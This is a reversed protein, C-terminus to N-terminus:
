EEPRGSDSYFFRARTVQFRFFDGDGHTPDGWRVTGESAIRVGDVVITSTVTASFPEYGPPKASDNWRRLEIDTLQGDDDVTVDIDVPGDPGPITVTARDDDIPRWVADSQPTLAQPLWAATEAALRGAASRETDPGSADVVPIRGYLEFQMRAGEPGLTDAGVFRLLRPGVEAEWRLESGALLRQRATFPLWIGLKIRGVMDLEVGDALPVGPAITAALFRHAPAPLGTLTEHHFRLSTDDGYSHLARSELM